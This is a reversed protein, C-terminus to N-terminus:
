NLSRLRDAAQEALRSRQGKHLVVHGFNQEGKFAEVAQVLGNAVTTLLSPTNPPQIIQDPDGTLIVKSNRGPRTLIAFMQETTILQADDVIIVCDNLSRGVIFNVPEIELLGQEMMGRATEHSSILRFNDFIPRMFPSFKDRLDGPLFGM